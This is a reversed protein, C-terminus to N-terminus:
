QGDSDNYADLANMLADSFGTKVKRCFLKGSALIRQYHSMDLDGPPVPASWDDYRLNNNVVTDRFPSNMILTQLYVEEPVVAHRLRCLLDDAFGDQLVWRIFTKHLSSYILGRYLEYGPLKKGLHLLRQGGVFLRNLNKWFRKRIDVYESLEAYRFIDLGEGWAWVKCPLHTCSIYNKGSTGLLDDFRSPAVAFYDAGSVIHYYDWEGARSAEDLLRVICRLHRASGWQIREWSFVRARPAVAEPRIESKRDLHVFVGWDAPTRGILRNLITLDRYATIILCHRM